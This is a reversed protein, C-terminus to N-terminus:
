QDAPRGLDFTATFPAACTAGKDNVSRLSTRSVAREVQGM